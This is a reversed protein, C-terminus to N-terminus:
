LQQPKAFSYAGAMTDIIVGEAAEEVGAGLEEVEVGLEEVEAGLVEIGGGLAVASEEAGEEAV